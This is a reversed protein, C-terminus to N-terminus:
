HHGEMEAPMRPRVSLRYRGAPTYGDRDVSSIREERHDYGLRQRM